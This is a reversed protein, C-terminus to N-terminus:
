KMDIDKYDNDLIKIVNKTIDNSENTYIVTIKDFVMDFGEQKAIKETILNIKELIKSILKQQYIVNKNKLDDIEKLYIEYLKQIHTQEEKVKTESLTSQQKQLTNKKTELDLQYKNVKDMIDQQYNDILKQVNQGIDSKEIVNKTDLVAINQKYIQNIDNAYATYRSFNLAFIILLPKLM